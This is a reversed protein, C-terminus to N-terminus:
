LTLRYGVARITEIHVHWELKKRINKIHTDITRDSLYHDYGIIENMLIKREVVQWEHHALHVLLEFETKTFRVPNGKLFVAYEDNRIEIDWLHIIANKQEQSWSRSLHRSIRAVLERWSFPKGVFDDAWFELSKVRDDESSRASLVLIPVNSEKRLLTCLEFGSLWPLNLDLIVWHPKREKFVEMAEDWRYVSIVKYGAHELYSTILSAITKDDEIVLITPNM